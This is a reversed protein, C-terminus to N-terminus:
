RVAELQAVLESTTRLEVPTKAYSARVAEFRLRYGRSVEPMYDPVVVFCEHDAGYERFGPFRAALHEPSLYDKVDVAIRRKGDASVATLDVRDLDPWLSCTWGAKSLAKEIEIETKGPLCWYTRFPRRLHMAGVRWKLRKIDGAKARRIADPARCETHFGTSERRLITGSVACIPLSGDVVLAEPIRHYFADIIQDIRDVTALRPHTLVVATWNSLVPNEIITRRVAVYVDQGDRRDMCVGRLLKYGANEILEAEPDAGPMALDACAPTIEGAEILRSATFQGDTDWSMDGAWEYLPKQALRALDSLNTPWDAQGSSLNSAAALDFGRQLSPPYGDKLWGYDDIQTQVDLLGRAFWTVLDQASAPRQDDGSELKGLQALVDTPIDSDDEFYRYLTARSIGLAQAAATKWRRGMGLKEGFLAQCRIEFKTAM